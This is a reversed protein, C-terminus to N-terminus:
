TITEEASLLISHRSVTVTLHACGYNHVGSDVLFFSAIGTAVEGVAQQYLIRHLHVNTLCNIDHM